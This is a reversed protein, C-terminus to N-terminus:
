RVRQLPQLLIHEGSHESLLCVPRDHAPTHAIGSGNTNEIKISNTVSSPPGTVVLTNAGANFTFTAPPTDAFENVAGASNTATTVTITQTPGGNLSVSFTAGVPTGLGVSLVVSYMGAAPAVLNSFTMQPSGGFAWVNFQSAGNGNRAPIEAPVMAGVTAAAQNSPSGEGLSNVATVIYYYIGAPLGGNPNAFAGGIDTYTTGTVNDIQTYPGGSVSARKINYSTAGYVATWSLTVSAYGGTATLTPATLPHFPTASAENSYGSDGFAASNAVVVYYYTTGNVATADTYTLGSVGTAIQDYSGGSTLSRYVTFSSGGAGNSGQQWNLVVSNDGGTATLNMPAATFGGTVNLTFTLLRTLGGGDTLAVTINVKGFQDAGPTVILKRTYRDGYLGSFSGTLVQINANPVITQNDSTATTVISAAPTEQDGVNFQVVYSQNAFIQPQFSYFDPSYPLTNAIGTGDAKEVKVSNITYQDPGPRGVPVLVRVVNLGTNFTANLGPTDKYVGTTTAPVTDTGVLADNLYIQIPDAPIDNNGASVVIKYTGATPANFLYDFTSGAAIFRVDYGGSNQGPGGNSYRADVEGPVNGGVAPLPKTETRVARYGLEKPQNLDNIDNTISYTGYQSDFTGAGLTFWNFQDGGHSYWANLYNVVLNQMQPDLTAAKKAAINNPGFTDPGGEYACMKLGYYTAQTAVQTLVSNSAAYGAISSSLANLVDQSSLNPNDDAGNLNFYPAIALGYFYNKPAGQGYVAEMYSLQTTFRFPALQNALIPRVTTNIASAGFVGKFIDSIEKLHDAVRREAITNVDNAGDYNLKVPSGGWSTGGAVETLALGRNFHAQDFGDNWVENAYEVWVHLGSNLPAWKPSAQPSTYPNTGDSGFKILQALKTVYDKTALTPINIWIDKNQLNGLAVTYEWCVGRGGNFVGGNYPYTGAGDNPLSANYIGDYPLGTQSLPTNQIM